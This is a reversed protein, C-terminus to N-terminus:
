SSFLNNASEYYCGNYYKGDHTCSTWKEAFIAFGLGDPSYSCQEIQSPQQNVVACAAITNELTFEEKLLMPKEYKKKMREM